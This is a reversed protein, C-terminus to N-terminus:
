KLMSNNISIVIDKALAKQMEATLDAMVEDLSVQKFNTARLGKRKSAIGIRIALDNRRAKNRLFNKTGAGLLGKPASREELLSKHRVWFLLADQHNKSPFAYRFKYPSTTNRNNPGVGQVGKDVFDAYSAMYFLGEYGFGDVRYNFTISSSLEGSATIERGNKAENLNRQLAELLKGMWKVFVREVENPELSSNDTGISDLFGTDILNRQKKAESAM